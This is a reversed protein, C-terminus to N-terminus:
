HAEWQGTSANLFWRPAASELAYFLWADADVRYCWPYASRGTWTWGLSSSYMWLSAENSGVVYLWGHQLHYIWATPTVTIYGFWPSWTWGGAAPTADQWLGGEQLEYAGLDASIGVRRPNGALDLGESMWDQLLGRDLCASGSELEYVGANRDAFEPPATMNGSGSLGPACSFAYAPGGGDSSTDSDTDATNFYVISNMVTAGGAGHIGGGRLARNDSVTCSEVTGGGDLLVGGGSGAAAENGVILCNRVRGGGNCCIGGGGAGDARNGAVICHSLMGGGDLLVGGGRPAIGGEIAFGAVIAEPHAVRLCRHGSAPGVPRM